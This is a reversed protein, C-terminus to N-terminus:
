KIGEKYRRYEEWLKKRLEPDSENEAAERLQRAVIDDDADPPPVDSPTPTAGSVGSSRSEGTEGSDRSKQGSEGQRGSDASKGGEAQEGSGNQAAAQGSDDQGEGTETDSGGAGSDTGDEGHGETGPMGDKGEMGSNGGYSGRPKKRRSAVKKQEGSLMEDFDGLSEILVRDLAMSKEESTRAAPAQYGPLLQQQAPCPLGSVADPGSIASLEACLGTIKEDLYSIYKGTADKEAPSLGGRAMEDMAARRTHDLTVIEGRVAEEEPSFAFVTSSCLAVLLAFLTSALFLRYNCPM